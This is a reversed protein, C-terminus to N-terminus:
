LDTDGMQQVTSDTPLENSDALVLDPSDAEFDSGHNRGTFLSIVNPLVRFVAPVTSADDYDGNSTLVGTVLPVDIITSGM